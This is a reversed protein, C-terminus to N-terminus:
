HVGGAADIPIVEEIRGDRIGIFERGLNSVTCAHNPILRIVDGVEL